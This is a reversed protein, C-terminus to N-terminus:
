VVSKRDGVVPDDAKEGIVVPVTTGDKKCVVGHLAMPRAVWQYKKIGGYYHTDLLALGDKEYLTHQKLDLRPSDIHAGLINMGSTLPEEGIMFMCLNKGRNVAYVKDGTKLPERIEALSRYGAAEALKVAEVVFERETKAASLIQRYSENFENLQQKEENNLKDWVTNM